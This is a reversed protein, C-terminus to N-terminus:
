VTLPVCTSGVRKYCGKSSLGFQKDYYIEETGKKIVILVGLKGNKLKHWRPFELNTPIPEIKSM